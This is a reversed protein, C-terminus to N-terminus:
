NIQSDEQVGGFAQRIEKSRDHFLDLQSHLATLSDPLTIAQKNLAAFHASLAAKEIIIRMDEIDDMLRYATLVTNDAEGKWQEFLEREHMDNQRQEQQLEVNKIDSTLASQIAFYEEATSKALEVMDHFNNYEDRVVKYQADWDQQLLESAKVYKDNCVTGMAAYSEMLKYARAINVNAVAPETVKESPAADKSADGEDAFASASDLIEEDTLECTTKAANEPNAIEAESESNSRPSAGNSSQTYSVANGAPNMNMSDFADALNSARNNAREVSQYVRQGPTSDDSPANVESQPFISSSPMNVFGLGVALTVVLIFGIIAGLIVKGM